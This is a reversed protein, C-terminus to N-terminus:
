HHSMLYQWPWFSFVRYEVLIHIETRIKFSCIM